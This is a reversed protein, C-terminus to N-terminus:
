KKNGVIIRKVQNKVSQMFLEKIWRIPNDTWRQPHFTIMIKDPLRGENAAQIIDKTNRFVLGQKIWEQQQPVKDRVSVKWGDWRRGTDTLYFIKDFDLDFYPETTIGFTHYNYHPLSQYNTPLLHYNTPLLYYNTPLPSDTDSLNSEQLASGEKKSSVVYKESSVEYKKSNREELIRGLWLRRNDYKSRPAGEMTMTTVPGFQRLYNLNTEFRKIAKQYNGHCESLDDYHYGIEHGMAAIQKIVVENGVVNFLRFYYSGKIGLSHQIQAFQLAHNYHAEVDHRLIITKAPCNSLNNLTTFSFGQRLLTKLLKMYIKFTFDM